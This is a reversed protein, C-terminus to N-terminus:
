SAAIEKELKRIVEQLNARMGPTASKMGTKLRALQAKKIDLASPPGKPAPTPAKLATAQAPSAGFLKDLWKM